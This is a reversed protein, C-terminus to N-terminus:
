RSPLLRKSRSHITYPKMDEEPSCKVGELYQVRAALHRLRRQLDMKEMQFQYHLADLENQLMQNDQIIAQIQQVSLQEVRATSSSPTTQISSYPPM